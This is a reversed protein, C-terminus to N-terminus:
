APAEALMWRSEGVAARIAALLGAAAADYTLPAIQARSAEGFRRRLDESAALRHLASTLKDVDNHSVIFGNHDSQVLDYASGVRDSVVIPLGFNMAENVALGWTEDHSSVLAFVDACAYARWVATQDLFGAFVVDPIRESAVVRRMEHKLPGSGVILLSCPQESRVRAFARLLHIPQKKEVLRGVSVIVPAETPLAFEMRLEHRRLGLEFATCRLAENDVAYPVHFLHDAPMGWREFWRRNATGIFLGFSEQFLWGLGVDKLATKWLPRPTMLTQEERYLVARRIAKQTMAALVHTVTHYGHVWLADFRERRIRGVIDCDRLALVSGGSPNLAARRLFTSPYGALPDVGWEVEDDDAIAFPRRAGQDSAFIATFDIRPDAAIRRYLPAQYYVPSAAFLGLRIPMASSPEPKRGKNAIRM